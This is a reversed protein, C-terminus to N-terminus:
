TYMRFVERALVSRMVEVAGETIMFTRRTRWFHEIPLDTTLGTGGHIQMCRDAADFGLETGHIKAIFSEHRSLKKHDAKWATQYVWLQGMQHRMFIDAIMFQVAQRDSLPAGFTVRQKAYATALELCRQAVGLGGAAQRLRGTTIWAQANKMGEGEKGVLNEVPVKVDDFAIQYSVDGSVKEFGRLIKVGPTNADVLLVSLGGRSGKSRDTAVVLQFFDAKNAHTIFRKMGNVLYHDGQRVATTRMMGPDAGADPETQAFATRKEGRLVPLLFRQKQEENLTFLLPMPEPGFIGPGRPPMAITRAMEEWVVVQGLMSLGLGGYEEPIDMMWLGLDRAKKELEARLAPKLDLGEMTDREIPILERDVFKRVTDKLARIEEPLEFDM